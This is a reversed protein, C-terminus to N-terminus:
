GPAPPEHKTATSASRAAYADTGETPADARASITIAPLSQVAAGSAADAAAATSQALAPLGAAALTLPFLASSSLAPPM